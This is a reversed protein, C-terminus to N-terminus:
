MVSLIITDHEYIPSLRWKGREEYQPRLSPPPHRKTSSLTEEAIKSSKFYHIAKIRSIYIRKEQDFM